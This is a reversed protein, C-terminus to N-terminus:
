EFLKTNKLKKAILLSLAIKVADPIICPVVCILLAERLGSATVFIFWMVGAAYCLLLGATQTIFPRLKKNTKECIYETLNYFIGWLIFGFIFGGTPGLLYGVGSSFSSFVPLGLIGLLVYLAVSCTGKKGGLLLLATSVGFTQLTIPTPAPITIFACLCLLATILAVQVLNYIGSKKM